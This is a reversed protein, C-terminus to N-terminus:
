ALSFSVSREERIVGAKMALVFNPSKFCTSNFACFTPVDTVSNIRAHPGASQLKSEFNTTLFPKCTATALLQEGIQDKSFRITMEAEKLYDKMALYHDLQTTFFYLVKAKTISVRQSKYKILPDEIIEVPEEQFTM